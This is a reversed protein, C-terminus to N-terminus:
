TLDKPASMQLRNKAQLETSKIKFFFYVSSIRNDEFKEPTSLGFALNRYAKSKKRQM